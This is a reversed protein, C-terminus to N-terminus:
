ASFPMELELSGGPPTPLRWERVRTAVCAALRDSGTDNRTVRAAGVEGSDTITFRVVVTGHVDPDNRSAAEFCSRARAAYYRRVVYRVRAAYMDLELDREIPASDGAAEGEPDGSSGDGDAAAGGTGSADGNAGGSDGGGAGGTGGRGRSAGGSAASGGGGGSTGTGTTVRGGSGGRDGAGSRGGPRLGGSRGRVVRGEGLFGDEPLAAGHPLGFDVPPEELPPLADGQALLSSSGAATEQGDESGSEAGEEPATPGGGIGGVLAVAVAAGVGSMLLGGLVLWIWSRRASRVGIAQLSVHSGEGAAHPVQSMGLSSVGGGYTMGRQDHMAWASSPFGRPPAGAGGTGPPAGGRASSAAASEPASGRDDAATSAVDEEGPLPGGPSGAAAIGAGCQNCFRSGDPNPAGCSQCYVVPTLM